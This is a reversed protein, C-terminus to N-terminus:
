ITVLIRNSAYNYSAPNLSPQLDWADDQKRAFIIELMSSNNEISITIKKLVKKLWNLVKRTNVPRFHM